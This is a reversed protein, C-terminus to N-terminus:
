AIIKDCPRSQKFLTYYNFCGYNESIVFSEPNQDDLLFLGSLWEHSRRFNHFEEIGGYYSHPKISSLWQIDFIRSHDIYHRIESRIELAKHLLIESPAHSDGAIWIDFRPSLAPNNYKKTEISCHWARLKQTPFYLSLNKCSKYEFHYNAISCNPM